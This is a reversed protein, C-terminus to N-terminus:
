YPQIATELLVTVTVGLGPVMLQAGIRLVRELAKRLKWVTIYVCKLKRLQKCTKKFNPDLIEKQSFLKRGM